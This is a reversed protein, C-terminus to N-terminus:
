PAGDARGNGVIDTIMREKRQWLGLSLGVKYEHPNYLRKYREHLHALQERRRDRIAELPPFPRVLKGSAVVPELMEVRHPSTLRKRRLPNTPDVIWVEGRSLDEDEAAVADAEMLGDRDYFRVIKKLGPNTTKEPNASLKITPEGNHAVMKYIGGLASGGEGSGTVLNTGVGWTDIRGGQALIDAILTEDLENSAVIKVYELGERDLMARAKISLFALDGSDIRIGALAHGAAELEKAVRIANPVGSGLTDYTDVLLICEDPFSRAYARFAELEDPFAQVWSHAHTGKAPVGFRAAGLVNSTADAGGILAARCASLAGDPGQARRLGFELVTGHQAAEWIRAAKTAVLTQFNLHCLLITEVLQCEILGGTVRVLPENPFVVTGEPIARIDGRFRYRALFDLFRDSFTRAGGPSRRSRLYDLDEATFRTQLVARVGDELGAAIAYGGRFPNRRYYLDFAAPEEGKGDALFGAAMTLEYLDTLLAETPM